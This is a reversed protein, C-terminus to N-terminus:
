RSPRPLRVASGTGRWARELPRLGRLSRESVLEGPRWRMGLIWADRRPLACAGRGPGHALSYVLPSSGGFRREVLQKWEAFAWRGQHTEAM